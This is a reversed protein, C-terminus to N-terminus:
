TVHTDRQLTELRYQEDVAEGCLNAIKVGARISQMILIRTKKLSEETCENIKPSLYCGLICICM